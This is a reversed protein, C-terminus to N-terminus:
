SRVPVVGDEPPQPAVRALLLFALAAVLGFGLASYWIAVPAIQDNLYGGIVPGLGMGVGWTLGYFGMYRGRMDPPSLNAALTTGTPALILEGLTVVVMSLLFAGFSRGLAVSGVGLGYFLAGVALVPLSPYRRTKQTVFYQFLVVMAANTAMILGYQSEIVNFQEKAYVPLLVMMMSAPIIALTTIACFTVFLRDRLLSGYGGPAAAETAAGENQHLTERVLSLVLLAFIAYAVAAAVFASSYSVATIFGGIAPGIAIGLNNSMRLLAYASSREDQEILDAVMANSGVRFLPGIAGMLVMMAAWILLGEAQTMALYLLGNATLSLLMVGKRGFRDAVPGALFTAVIGTVSNLSLLLGITTLSVDLRQRIYITLFPWVMSGGTASILMGGCLVWLQRPYRQAFDQLWEIGHSSTPLDSM